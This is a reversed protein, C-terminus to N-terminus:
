VAGEEPNLFTATHIPVIASGPEPPPPNVLVPAFLQRALLAIAAAGAVLVMALGGAIAVRVRPRQSRRDAPGRSRRRRLDETVTAELWPKPPLVEDLASRLESRMTHESDVTSRWANDCNRCA